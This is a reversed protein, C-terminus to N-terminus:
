VRPFVHGIHGPIWKKDCVMLQMHEKRPKMKMFVVRFHVAFELYTTSEKQIMCSIM